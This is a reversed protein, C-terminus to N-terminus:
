VNLFPKKTNPDIMGLWDAPTADKDYEESVAFPEGDKPRVQLGRFPRVEAINTIRTRNKSAADADPDRQISEGIWREGTIQNENLVYGSRSLRAHITTDEERREKAAEEKIREHTKEDQAALPSVKGGRKATIESQTAEHSQIDSMANQPENAVGTATKTAKKKTM